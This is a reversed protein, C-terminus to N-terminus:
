LKKIEEKLEAIRKNNSEIEEKTKEIFSFDPNEYDELFSKISEEKQLNELNIKDILKQISEKDPLYSFHGLETVM